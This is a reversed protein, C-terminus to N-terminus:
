AGYKRAADLTNRLLMAITMPGIGGPVPTMAGAIEAVTPDVDGCVGGEEKRNIGVDIVVAGPKVMERTVFGRRGVAAILIDAQKTIESLNKTRSHCVTVTADAELLLLAMPKGVINSRGIVVAHKGRLDVGYEKLIEMVGRPTCPVFGQRGSLLLGANVAHFGDVDKAPDILELVRSENLHAPLPLQVLIGHVDPNHNLQSVTQELTDQDCDAGLRVVTSRIGTDRCANEKNRVYVSSAPDDGVLVVALHPHTGTEIMRQTEEALQLRIKKALAAGDM